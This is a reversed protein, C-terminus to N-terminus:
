FSRKCPRLRTNRHVDNFFACRYDRQLSVFLIFFLFAMENPIFNKDLGFFYCFGVFEFGSFDLWSNEFFLCWFNTIMPLPVDYSRFGHPM